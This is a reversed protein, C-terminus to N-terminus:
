FFYCVARNNTSIATTHGCNSSTCLHAFHKGFGLSLTNFFFKCILFLFFFLNQYYQIPIDSVGHSFYVHIFSVNRLPFLGSVPHIWTFLLQNIYASFTQVFLPISASTAWTTHLPCSRLCLSLCSIFHPLPPFLSAQSASQGTTRKSVGHPHCVLHAGM